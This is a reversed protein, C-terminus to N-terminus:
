ASCAGVPNPYIDVRRTVPDFDFSGLRAIRQAGELMGAGHAVAADRATELLQRQSSATAALWVTLAFATALTVALVLVHPEDPYSQNHPLLALVLAALLLLGILAPLHRVLQTHRLM